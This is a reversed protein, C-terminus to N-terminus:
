QFNHYLSLSTNGFISMLSLNVPGSVVTSAPVTSANQATMPFWPSLKLVTRFESALAGMFKAITVPQCTFTIVGVNM